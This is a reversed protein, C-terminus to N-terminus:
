SVSGTCLRRHLEVEPLDPCVAALYTHIDNQIENAGTGVRDAVRSSTVLLCFM